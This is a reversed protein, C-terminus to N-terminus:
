LKEFSEYQRGQCDIEELVAAKSISKFNDLGHICNLVPFYAVESIEYLHSYIPFREQAFRRIEEVLNRARPNLDYWIRFQPFDVDLDAKDLM